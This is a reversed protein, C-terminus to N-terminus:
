NKMNKMQELADIHKKYIHKNGVQDASQMVSFGPNTNGEIFEIQGKDTIVVDWGIHRVDPMQRASETVSDIVKDWHPIQFGRIQKLSDPHASFRELSKNVADSSVIGTEIQVNAYLGGQNANDVVIGIRGFRVGAYTILPEDSVTLLTCLRLSNVTEPNFEALCPHQLIMEEILYDDQKLREFLAQRDDDVEIIDAGIGYTKAAPKAFFRPHKDTFDKFEEFSSQPVYLYDRKVYKPFAKNFLHKQKIVEKSTETRCLKAIKQKYAHSVFTKSQAITKSHLEYSFYDNVNFGRPAFVYQWEVFMELLEQDTHEMGVMDFYRSKFKGAQKKTVAQRKKSFPKRDEIQPMARPPVDELKELAFLDTQDVHADSYKSIDKPVEIELFTCIENVRFIQVRRAYGSYGVVRITGKEAEIRKRSGFPYLKKFKM